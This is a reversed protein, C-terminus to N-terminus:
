LDAIWEDVEDKYFRYGSGMKFCPMQGLRILKYVTATRIQFYQAVESTTMLRRLPKMSVSGQMETLYPQLLEEVALSLDAEIQLKETPSAKRAKKILEIFYERMAVESYM